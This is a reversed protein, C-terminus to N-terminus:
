SGIPCLRSKHVKHQHSFDFALVTLRAIWCCLAVKAYCLALIRAPLIEGHLASLFPDPTQVDLGRWTRACQQKRRRQKLVLGTDGM